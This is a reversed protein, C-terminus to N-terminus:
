LKTRISSLGHFFGDPLEFVEVSIQLVRIMGNFSFEYIEQLRAIAPATFLCGIVVQSSFAMSDKMCETLAM